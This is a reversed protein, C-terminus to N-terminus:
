SRNIYVPHRVRRASQGIVGIGMIVRLKSAMNGSVKSLRKEAAAAKVQAATKQGAGALLEAAAYLYVVMDDLELTDNDNVLQNVVRQGDFAVEGNDDATGNTAPTPWVEFQGAGHFRWKLVPDTEQSEAPDYDTYDAFDMGYALQHWVGSHKVWAGEIKMANLSAPFDYFRQSAQLVKRAVADNHLVKLHPWDHEEALSYYYRKVLQKINALHDTGRSSNTSLRAELRTAEVVQEWTKGLAM